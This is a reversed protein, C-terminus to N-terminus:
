FQSESYTEQPVAPPGPDSPPRSAERYSCRITTGGGPRPRIDFAAGIMRARYPMLHLGMGTAGVADSRIGKGDDEITLVVHGDDHDISLWISAAEAHRAANSVAEQAIRYLHVAAHHSAVAVARGRDFHCPIGYSDRVRVGLARLAATLGDSGFEVPSLGNALDRVQEIASNILDSIRRLEAAEPIARDALKRAVNQSLFSLGTLEQGLGDHLDHGIRRQERESIELVESELRKLKTIDRAVHAFGRLKGHEDYLATMIVQAWFATGDKRVRWGEDEHRGTAAVAALNKEPRGDARDQASFFISYDSQLIDVEAYGQIRYARNNWRVVRGQPDLLFIACDTVGEILARFGEESERALRNSRELDRTRDRVRHELNENTLRLQREARRRLNVLSSILLSVMLFAILRLVDDWGFIGTGAPIDFFYYASSWGAAATALLGPGIGGFWTSLMVAVFFFSSIEGLVPQTKLTLLTALTVFVLALAYRRLRALLPNPRPQAANTSSM